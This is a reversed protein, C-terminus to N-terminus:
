NTNEDYHGNKDGINKANEDILISNFSLCFVTFHGLNQPNNKSHNPTKCCEETNSM